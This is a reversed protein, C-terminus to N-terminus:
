CTRNAKDELDIWFLFLNKDGKSNGNHRLGESYNTQITAIAEWSTKKDKGKHGCDLSLLTVPTLRSFHLVYETARSDLVKWHNGMEYLDFDSM